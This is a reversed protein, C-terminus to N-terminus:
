HAYPYDLRAPVAATAAWLEAERLLHESRRNGAKTRAQTTYTARHLELYLEGSWVPADPYEAQAARFFTDPDEIVVRASGELDALRRARELMERTPGGGGDGYGFPALSRTARGKEAFNRAAHALEAGLLESNYTDVPPSPPFVRPGGTGEWWFAHPPM